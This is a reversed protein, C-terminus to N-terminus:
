REMVHQLLHWNPSAAAGDRSIENEGEHDNEEFMERDSLEDGELLALATELFWMHKKIFHVAVTGGVRLGNYRKRRGERHAWAYEPTMPDGERITSMESGEVLAEIGYRTPLEPLPPNYRVGFTSVSSHAWDTLTPTYGIGTPQNLERLVKQAHLGYADQIQRKIRGVESPFLFGHAYVTGSRPHDYIWCRESTWRIEQAKPHIRMWKATQKDEAGKILSKVTPDKAVWDVLTWSLAYLEGAMFQHYKNTVLYGWYILPDSDTLQKLARNGTLANSNANAMVNSGTNHDVTTGNSVYKSRQVAAHNPSTHRHEENPTHLEVRLRAEIEALMVFSDDDVKVVYDPRVWSMPDSSLVDKWALYPDHPALPPPSSTFNSYTFRPPLITSNVYVPPVWANISAWSFFTHSKGENMNEHTPLIIIDNYMEMELKVRQEWDKRPQGVVFRVITRSTGNGDDGKGAGNRSRYHSAWTSRVYQRREVASDVSFVGLFIGVPPLHDFNSPPFTVSVPPHHTPRRYPPSTFPPERSNYMTPYACYLRWPLPEKDPNLIYILLLTLCIAFISLLILTLVITIPQSPFLPHRLVSRLTRKLLRTIRWSRRRRRRTWWQRRNDSWWSHPSSNWPLLPSPEDETDSPYSSSSNDTFFQHRPIPHPSASRSPIPTSAPSSSLSSLHSSLPPLLFSPNPSRQDDCDSDSSEYSHM